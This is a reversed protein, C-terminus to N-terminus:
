RYLAKNFVSLPSYKRHARAHEVRIPRADIIMGRGNMICL